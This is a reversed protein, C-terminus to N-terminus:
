KGDKHGPLAAIKKKLAEVEKTFREDKTDGYRKEFVERSLGEALGKPAICIDAIRCSKAVAALRAPKEILRSAFAVGSLDAALDAFSFGSGGPEADLLEKLLGAAEAAEAGGVATLAASVAFHQCLDHREHMPPSGVAKLRGKREEDTEVRKWLGRTLPNTRLMGSSDMAVGVGLLFARAKEKELKDAAAAAAQLCHETLADGRLPRERRENAKAAATVAAVVKRAGAVMAERDVKAPKAVDGPLLLLLLLM